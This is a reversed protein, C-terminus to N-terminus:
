EVNKLIEYIKMYRKKKGIDAHLIITIGVQPPSLKFGSYIYLVIRKKITIATTTPVTVSNTKIEFTVYGNRMPITMARKILGRTFKRSFFILSGLATATIIDMIKMM